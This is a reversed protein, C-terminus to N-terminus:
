NGERKLLYDSVFDRTPDGVNALKTKETKTFNEDSLDKGTVKSVKEELTDTVAKQSMASSTSQGTSQVLTFTNQPYAVIVGNSNTIYQDFGIGNRVYYISNPQLLVPLTSVVKHQLLQM